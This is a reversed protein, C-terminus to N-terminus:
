RANRKNTAKEQSPPPPPVPIKVRDQKRNSAVTRAIKILKENAAEGLMGGESSDNDLAILQQQVIYERNADSTTESIGEVHALVADRLQSPLGLQMDLLCTQCLNKTRACAQCVQNFIQFPLLWTLLM